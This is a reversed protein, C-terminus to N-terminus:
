TSGLPDTVNCVVYHQKGPIGVGLQCIGNGAVQVNGQPLGCKTPDSGPTRINYCVGFRAWVMKAYFSTHGVM